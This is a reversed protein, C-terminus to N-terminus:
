QLELFNWIRGYVFGVLYYQMGLELCRFQEVADFFVFHRVGRSFWRGM